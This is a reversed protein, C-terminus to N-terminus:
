LVTNIVLSSHSPSGLQYNPLFHNHHPETYENLVKASVPQYIGVYGLGQM